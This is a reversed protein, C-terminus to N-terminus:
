EIKLHLYSNWWLLTTLIWFCIFVLENSFKTNWSIYLTTGLALALGTTFYPHVIIKRIKTEAKFIGLFLITIPIIWSFGYVLTLYTIGLWGFNGPQPYFVFISYCWSLIFAICLLFYKRKM